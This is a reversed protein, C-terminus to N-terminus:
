GICTYKSVNNSNHPPLHLEQISSIQFEWRVTRDRVALDVQLGNLRVNM